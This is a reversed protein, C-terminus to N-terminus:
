PKRGIAQWQFSFDSSGDNGQVVRGKFSGTTKGGILVVRSVQPPDSAGSETNATVTYSNNAFAAPL